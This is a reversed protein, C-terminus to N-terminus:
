LVSLFCGFLLHGGQSVLVSVLITGILGFLLVVWYM